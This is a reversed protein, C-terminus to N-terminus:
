GNKLGRIVAEVELVESATLLFLGSAPAVGKSPATFDQIQTPERNNVTFCALGFPIQNKYQRLMNLHTVVRRGNEIWAGSNWNLTTFFWGLQSQRYLLGIVLKSGDPLQVTM